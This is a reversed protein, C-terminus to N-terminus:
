PTGPSSANSAFTAVRTKRDEEYATPLGIASFVEAVQQTLRYVFPSLLRSIRRASPSPIQTLDSQRIAIDAQRIERVFRLYAIHGETHTATIQGIFMCDGPLSTLKSRITGILELRAKTLSLGKRMAFRVIADFQDSFMERDRAGAVLAYEELIRLFAARSEPDTVAFTDAVQDPTTRRLWPLAAEPSLKEPFGPLGSQQVHIAKMVEQELDGLRRALLEPFYFLRLYDPLSLIPAYSLLGRHKQFAIDCDATIVVGLAEWPDPEAPQGIWEFIDGQRIPLDDTAESCESFSTEDQQSVEEQQSVPQLTAFWGDTRM